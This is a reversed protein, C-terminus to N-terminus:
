TAEIRRSDRAIDGADHLMTRLRDDYSHGDSRIHKRVARSMRSREDADALLERALVSAQEGDRFYRVREGDGGFLDRHDPTDEVLLCTGIAGAELSRMTHGDRNAHRVLIINLKAALTLELIDAPPRHGLYRERLDPWRDWYGGVLTPNGGNRIFDRFFAARKDDAGGVFLADAAFENPAPDAGSTFLREDFGFRMLRVSRCGLDRFQDLNADRPTYVIDYERLALHHWAARHAPNWPDDTSFHVTVCGRDRLARITSARVHMLGTTIVLSGAVIDPEMLRQDLQAPFPVGRNARWALKNLVSFRSRGLEDPCFIPEVGPMAEAADFLSQGVNSGGRGGCIVVRKSLTPAAANM